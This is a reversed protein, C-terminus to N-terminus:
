KCSYGWTPKLLKFSYRKLMIKLRVHFILTSEIVPISPTNQNGLKFHYIHFNIQNLLKIGERYQSTRRTMFVQTKMMTTQKKNTSTTLQVNENVLSIPKEWKLKGGIKSRLIMMSSFLLSIHYAHYFILFHRDLPQYKRRLRIMLLPFSFTSYYRRNIFM